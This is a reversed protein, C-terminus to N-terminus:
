AGCLLPSVRSGPIQGNRIRYRGLRNLKATESNDRWQKLAQPTCLSAVVYYRTVIEEEVGGGVKM